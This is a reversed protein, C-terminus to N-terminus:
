MPLWSAEPIGNIGPVRPLILLGVIPVLEYPSLRESRVPRWVDELGTCSAHSPRSSAMALVQFPARWEFTLHEGQGPTRMCRCEM